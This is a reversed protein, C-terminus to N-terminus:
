VGASRVYDAAPHALAVKWRVRFLPPPPPQSAKEEQREDDDRPRDGPHRGAHADVRGPDQAQRHRDGFAQDPAAVDDEGEAREAVAGVRDGDVEPVSSEASAM